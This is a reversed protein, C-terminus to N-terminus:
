KIQKENIHYKFYSENDKFVYITKLKPCENFIENM